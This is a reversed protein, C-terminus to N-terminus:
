RQTIRDGAVHLHENFSVLTTGRASAVVTTVSTNVVVRALQRYTAADGEVLRSSSWAIPGGSTVVVALGSERVQDTVADLATQVRAGFVTFSERYDAEHGGTLWRDVAATFRGDPDDADADADAPLVSMLEVHDLEDWDADVVVPCDWGAAAAVIEATRRQRVLAGHVVVDPAIGRGALAAGLIGAQEEGLPSLVDYDAAGWSAQGHRVLLVVGM